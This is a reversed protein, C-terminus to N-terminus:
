IIEGLTYMFPCGEVPDEHSFEFNLPEDVPPTSSSDGIRYTIVKKGKFDM